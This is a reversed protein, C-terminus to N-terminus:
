IKYKTRRFLEITEDDQNDIIQSRVLYIFDIAPGDYIRKGLHRGVIKAYALSGVKLDPSLDGEKISNDAISSLYRLESGKGAWSDLKNLPIPMGSEPSGWIYTDNICATAVRYFETTELIERPCHELIQFVSFCLAWRRDIISRKQTFGFDFVIPRDDIFGLNDIHNDMHIYGNDIMTELVAIFGLQQDRSLNNLNDIYFNVNNEDDMIKYRVASRDTVVEPSQELIKRGMGALTGYDIHDYGIIKQSKITSLRDMVIFGNEGCVFYRHIRPAIGLEGLEQGKCAEDFWVAEDNKNDVRSVKIVLNDFVYAAGQEGKGLFKGKNKKTVTLICNDIETDSPTFRQLSCVSQLQQVNRQQQQVNPQQDKHIYCYDGRNPVQKSCPKGSKTFGRCTEKKPM